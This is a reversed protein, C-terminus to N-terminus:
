PKQLRFLTREAAELDRKRSEWESRAEAEDRQAQAVAAQATKIEAQRQREAEAAAEARAKEKENEKQERERARPDAQRRASVAHLAAPPTDRVAVGALAEFGAPQVPQTLRGAAEGAKTALSLAELTQTLADPNPNVGASAALRQAEKVAAALAKRHVDAAGRLDAARGGLAAIQATRLAAGSKILRDYAPRAHWYVQNVAWAVAAPKPLAKVRKADDSGGSTKALTQALATRASVFEALPGQYLRDIRSELSSV